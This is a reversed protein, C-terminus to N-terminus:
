PMSWDLTMTMSLNEDPQLVKLGPKGPLNHANVPHSVPEFCFFECDPNPSYIIANTQTDSKITLSVADDGQDVRAVGDWNSFGCNIWCDPLPKGGSFDFDDPPAQLMQTAPLGGTGEPWYAPTNAQLRTQATRPFWPHFGGGFPLAIEARNTMMLDITLSDGTLSFTQVAEYRFPGFAGDPLHLSAEAASASTVSWEKQFGDGHIAFPESEMNRDMPYYTSDFRFGGDIRNSFPVLINSALAFPGDEEKGSWPRLVPKDGVLLDAIGGGMVPHLILRANGTKLELM